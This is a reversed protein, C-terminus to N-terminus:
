KIFRDGDVTLYANDIVELNAMESGQLRLPRHNDVVLHAINKVLLTRTKSTATM